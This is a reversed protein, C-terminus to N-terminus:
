QQQTRGAGGRNPDVKRMFGASGDIGPFDDATLRVDADNANELFRQTLNQWDVSWMPIAEFPRKGYAM